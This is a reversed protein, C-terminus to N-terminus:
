DNNLVKPVKVYGNEKMPVNNMFDFSIQDQNSIDARLIPNDKNIDDQKIDIDVNQIQDIYGLISEMNPILNKSEIENVNIKVYGALRVIDDHTM